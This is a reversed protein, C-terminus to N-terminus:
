LLERVEVPVRGGHHGHDVTGEQLPDIRDRVLEVRQARHEDDVVARRHPGGGSEHVDSPEVLRRLGGGGVSRLDRAPTIVVQVDDVGAARGPQGLAHDPGTPSGASSVSRITSKSKV